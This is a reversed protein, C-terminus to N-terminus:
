TVYEGVKELLKSRFFFLRVGLKTEPVLILCILSHSVSRKFM